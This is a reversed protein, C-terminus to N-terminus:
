STLMLDGKISVTVEKFPIDLGLALELAKGVDTHPMIGTATTKYRAELNLHSCKM